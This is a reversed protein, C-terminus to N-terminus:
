LTAAGGCPNGDRQFQRWMARLEDPSLQPSTIMGPTCGRLCLWSADRLRTPSMSSLWIGLSIDEGQFRKLSNHNAALQQVVDASLMNGSGCAFAPYTAGAYEVERWKGTKAVPWGERFASWWTSRHSALHLGYHRYMQLLRHLNLFCDDDTKLAFRYSVQQLWTYFRLLKSALGRYTDVHDPLVLMDSHVRAEEALRTAESQLTQRWERQRKKRAVATSQAIEAAVDQASDRVVVRFRMGASCDAVLGASVYHVGVGLASAEVVLESQQPNDRSAAPATDFWRVTDETIQCAAAAAASALELVAFMEAPGQWHLRLADVSGLTIETETYRVGRRWELDFMQHPADRDSSYIFTAAAFRGSALLADQPRPEVVGPYADTFLGTRVHPHFTILGGGTNQAYRTEPQSSDLMPEENTFGVVVLTLLADRALELPPQLALYRHSGRPEGQEQESFHAEALVRHSVRDWVQVRLKSKLGDQGSDFVGLHTVRIWRHTDFDMGVPGMPTRAGHSTAAVWHAYIPTDTVLGDDGPAPKAACGFPSTRDQPHIPCAEGGVVFKVLVQKRLKANTAAEGAWTERLARRQEFHGRASMVGVVIDVHEHEQRTGAAAPGALHSGVRLLRMRATEVARALDTAGSASPEAAPTHSAVMASDGANRHAVPLRLAGELQALGREVDRWIKDPHRKADDANLAHPALGARGEEDEADVDDTDGLFVSGMAKAPPKILPLAAHLAKIVGKAVKGLRVDVQTGACGRSCGM